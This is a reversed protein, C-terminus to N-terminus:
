GVNALSAGARAEGVEPGVKQKGHLRRRRRAFRPAMKLPAPPPRNLWVFQTSYYLTLKTTARVRPTKTLAQESREGTGKKYLWGEHLVSEQDPPPLTTESKSRSLNFFPSETGERNTVLTNSLSSNPRSGGERGGGEEGEREREQERGGGWGAGGEGEGERERKREKEKESQERSVREARERCVGAFLSKQENLPLHIDSLFEEATSDGGEWFDEYKETERFRSLVDERNFHPPRPLPKGSNLRQM